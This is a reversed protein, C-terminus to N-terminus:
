FISRFSRPSLSGDRIMLILWAVLSSYIGGPIAWSWVLHFFEAPNLVLSMFLNHAILGCLLVALRSYLSEINMSEKVHYSAMGLLGLSMTYWGMVQVQGTSVVLGAVFGFWIASMETQFVAVMIVMIGALNISAGFISTVDRTLTEHGAIILLYILYPLFRTM